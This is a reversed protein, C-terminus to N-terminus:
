RMLIAVANKDSLIDNELECLVPLQVLSRQKAVAAEVEYLVFIDKIIHFGLAYDCFNLLRPAVFLYDLVADSLFSPLEAPLNELWVFLHKWSSLARFFSAVLM